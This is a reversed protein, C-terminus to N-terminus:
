FRIAGTVWVVIFPLLIFVFMMAYLIWQARGARKLTEADIKSHQAEVM